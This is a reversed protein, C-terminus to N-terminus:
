ICESQECMAQRRFGCITTSSGSRGYLLWENARYEGQLEILAEENFDLVSYALANLKCFDDSELSILKCHQNESCSPSDGILAIAENEIRGLEVSLSPQHLGEKLNVSISNITYGVGNSCTLEFEVRGSGLDWDVIGTTELSRAEDCSECDLSVERPPFSLEGTSSVSGFMSTDIFNAGFDVEVSTGNVGIRAFGSGGCVSGRWYGSFYEDYVTSLGFSLEDRGIIIIPLPTPIPIVILEGPFDVPPEIVEEQVQDEFGAVQGVRVEDSTNSGGCGNLLLAAGSVFLGNLLIKGM